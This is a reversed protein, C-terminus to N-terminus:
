DGLGLTGTLGRRAGRVESNNAGRMRSNSVGKISKIRDDRVKLDHMEARTESEHRHRKDSNRYRLYMLGYFVPGALLLVLGLNSADGDGSSMALVVGPDTTALVSLDM